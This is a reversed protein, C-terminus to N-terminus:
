GVEVEVPVVNIVTEQLKKEGALIKPPILKYIVPTIIRSLVTSSILGGIMVIALPAILPNSSIAIPILGGIATLSTLVIPLFRIEGAERIARELSMGKERLQNTFDVLLITNKVEIGALAIIGVTAIFSLSNGTIFLALIAGVIGLPIVSLVILTSKFTKFQLILAAIFLFLTVLLITHLGGFSHKRSEVDGGMEYSYGNPLKFHNMQEVVDKLVNDNLYGKQVFANVSVTRTKNTHNISVASSEMALSAVQTLPVAGGASNNIYLNHFVGLDPYMLRPATLLIKFDDGDANNFKGMDLGNVALRVTRDINVTPIGLMQAKEKNIAVRIDTKLNKVPNTVYITGKTHLVMEEVRAALSRLTDLNEGLLRVEVPASIPPGQEFNKVIIEAGPYPTYKKRLMEIIELKRAPSTHEQLQIFLQGFDTRENQQFINYYIRPNGKGVNAAFYAVDPIDKLDNEIQHTITNTYALNSQLPTIVNILFQPKESAPFLSFGVVPILKLSGVFIVACVGITIAPRKLAKELLRSYSGSILKKLGRMFINGDPHGTHQKL